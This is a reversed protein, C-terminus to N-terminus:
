VPHLMETLKWGELLEVEIQGATGVQGTGQGTGASGEASDASATPAKRCTDGTQWLSHGSFM